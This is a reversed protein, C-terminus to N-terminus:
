PDTSEIRLASVEAISAPRIRQSFHLEIHLCGRDDLKAQVEIGLLEGFARVLSLGLGTHKGGTRAPDKRWFRDFLMPLDEAQLHAAPNIIVLIWDGNEQRAVARITSGEPSYNVANSLLNSIMLELKDPDTRLTLNPSIERRLSIDKKAAERTQPRWAEDFLSLIEVDTKRVIELGSEYRALALLHVVTKEMQKSIDQVDAFFQLVMDQKDPWRTGVEALNRLEAIPTRLEHAINSSLRRERAFAQELRELLANLQDVIPRLERPTDSVQLRNLNRAGLGGMQDTVQHLPRLGLRLSERVLLAVALLLVLVTSAMTIAFVRRRDDLQQRSKAVVLVALQRRDSPPWIDESALPPETGLSTESGLSTAATADEAIAGEVAPLFDIQVLRGPRGEPLVVDRFRPNQSPVVDRPLDHLSGLLGQLGEGPRAESHLRDGKALSVSREILHGDGSWLQFYERETDPELKPLRKNALQIAADPARTTLSALVRAQALLAADLDEEQWRGVMWSSLCGAAILLIGVGLLLLISLRSSLSKM